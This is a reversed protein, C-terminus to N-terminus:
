KSVPGLEIRNERLNVKIKPKKGRIPIIRRWTDGSPNRFLAVFGLYAAMPNPKIELTEQMGPQVIREQVDLFDDSLTEKDSKWLANYDAADFRGEDKLQYVRVVVSLAQGSPDPNVNPAAELEIRVPSKTASQKPCGKPVAFTAFVVCLGLLRNHNMMTIELINAGNGAL